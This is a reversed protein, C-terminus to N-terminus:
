LDLKERLLFSIEEIAARQRRAFRSEPLRAVSFWLALPVFSAPGALIITMAHLWGFTKASVITGVLGLSAWLALKGKFSCARACEDALLRQRYRREHRLEEYSCQALPMGSRISHVLTPIDRRASHQQRRGPQQSVM